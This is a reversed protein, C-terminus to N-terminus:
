TGYDAEYSWLFGPISAGVKNGELLRSSDIISDLTRVAVEIDEPARRRSRVQSQGPNSKTEHFFLVSDKDSIGVPYVVMNRFGNLTISQCLRVVNKPNPEFAITRMGRSATVLSIWGINAGVDLM